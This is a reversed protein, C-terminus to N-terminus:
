IVFAVLTVFGVTSEASGSGVTLTAVYVQSTSAGLADVGVVVPNVKNTAVVTLADSDAKTTGSADTRRIRLRGTVGNTGVTYGAQCVLLVKQEARLDAAVTLTAIITEAAAAPSAVVTATSFFRTTFDAQLSDSKVSQPSM